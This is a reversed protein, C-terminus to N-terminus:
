ILFHAWIDDISKQYEM